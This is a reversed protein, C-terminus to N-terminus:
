HVKETQKNLLEVLGVPPKNTKAPWIQNLNKDVVIDEQTIPRCSLPRKAVPANPLFSGNYEYKGTFFIPKDSKYQAFNKFNVDQCDKGLANERVYEQLDSFYTLKQAVIIKIIDTTIKQNNNDKLVYRDDALFYLQRKISLAYSVHRGLGQCNIYQKLGDINKITEQHGYDEPEAYEVVFTVVPEIRM